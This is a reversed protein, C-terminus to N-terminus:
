QASWGPLDVGGGRTFGMVAIRGLGAPDTLTESARRAALYQQREISSDAVAPLVAAGLRHLWEAQSTEPLASLGAAHAAESVQDIDVHATLDQEGPHAYPDDGPVHKRFTMLTGDRRWPAYLRDRRYGYDFLLLLGREAVLGALETVMDGRQPSVEVQQGEAAACDTLSALLRKDSIETILDHFGCAPNHGVRLERWTGGQYTLRHVPLADLLENAIVLHLEGVSQGLHPITHINGDPHVPTVRDRQMRAAHDDPEVLTYRTEAALEPAQRHLHRLVSEALAGTGPGVETIYFPQPEDLLRWLAICVHGIAGGFLPHVEPSTMFDGDRGVTPRGRRYYGLEPEYLCADMWEAFSLPGSREIRDALMRALPTDMSQAAVALPDFSQPGSRTM